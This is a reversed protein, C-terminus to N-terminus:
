IDLKATKKINEYIEIDFEGLEVRAKIVALEVELYYSFKQELDWIKATNPRSYREIM